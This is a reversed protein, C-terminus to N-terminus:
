CVENVQKVYLPYQYSSQIGEDWIARQPYQPGIQSPDNNFSNIADLLRVLSGHNSGTSRIGSWFGMHVQTGVRGVVPDLSLIDRFLRQTFEERQLASIKVDPNTFIPPIINIISDLVPAVTTNSLDLLRRLHLSGEVKRWCCGVVIILLVLQLM